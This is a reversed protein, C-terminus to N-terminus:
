DQRAPIQYRMLLPWQAHAYLREEFATKLALHLVLHQFATM